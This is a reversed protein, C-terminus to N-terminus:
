KEKKELKSKLVAKRRKLNERLKAARKDIKDDKTQKEKTMEDYIGTARLDYPCFM